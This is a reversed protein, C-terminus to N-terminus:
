ALATPQLKTKEVIEDLLHPMAVFRSDVVLRCSNARLEIAGGQKRHVRIETIQSWSLARSHWLVRKSIGSQDTRVSGTALWFSILLFSGFIVIASWERQNFIERRFGVAIAGITCAVLGLVVRWQWKIGYVNADAHSTPREDSKASLLWRVVVVIAAVTAAQYLFTAV